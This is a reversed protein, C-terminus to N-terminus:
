KRKPCFTNNIKGGQSRKCLLRQRWAEAFKVYDIPTFQVGYEPNGLFAMQEWRIM